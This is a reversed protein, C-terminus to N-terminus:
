ILALPVSTSDDSNEMAQQNRVLILLTITLYLLSDIFPNTNPNYAIPQLVHCLSPINQALLPGSPLCAKIACQWM